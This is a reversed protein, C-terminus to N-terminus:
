VSSNPDPPPGQAGSVAPEMQPDTEYEPDKTTQWSLADQIQEPQLSEHSLKRQKRKEQVHHRM